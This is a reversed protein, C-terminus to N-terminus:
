GTREGEGHVPHGRATASPLLRLAFVEGSEGPPQTMMSDVIAGNCTELQSMTSKNDNEQLTAQAKLPTDAVESPKRVDLSHPVDYRSRVITPRARTPSVAVTILGSSRNAAQAQPTGDDM